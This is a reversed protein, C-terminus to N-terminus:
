KCKGGFYKCINPSSVTVEQNERAAAPLLMGAAAAAAALATVAEARDGRELPLDRWAAGNSESLALSASKVLAQALESVAESTWEATAAARSAVATVAALLPALDGGYLPNVAAYHAAEKALRVISPDRASLQEQLKM